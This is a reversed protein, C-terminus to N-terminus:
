CCCCCCVWSLFNFWFKETNTRACLMVKAPSKVRPSNANEKKPTVAVLVSVEHAKEVLISHFFSKGGCQDWQTLYFTPSYKISAQQFYWFYSQPWWFPRCLSQGGAPFVLDWLHFAIRKLDCLLNSTSGLSGGLAFVSVPLHHTFGRKLDKM